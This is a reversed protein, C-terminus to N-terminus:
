DEEDIYGLLEVINQIEITTSDRSVILGNDNGVVGYKIFKNGKSVSVLGDVDVYEIFKEADEDKLSSSVVFKGNLFKSVSGISLLNNLKVKYVGFGTKKKLFSVFNKDYDYNVLIVDKLVIINNGFTNLHSSSVILDIDNEKCINSLHEFEFDPLEPVLIFEDNGNIFVGVLDTGLVSIRYVPVKLTVELVKIEKDKISNGALCFKNNCFLYLGINNTDNLDLLNVKKEVM